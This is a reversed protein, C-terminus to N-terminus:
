LRSPERFKRGREINDRIEAWVSRTTIETRDDFLSDVAKARRHLKMLSDVSDPLTLSDDDPSM